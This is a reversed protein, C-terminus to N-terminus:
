VVYRYLPSKDGMLLMEDETFKNRSEDESIADRKKNEKQYATKLILTSLIAACLTGLSYGYGLWYRPEQKAIYINSGIAGGLNGISILLAMGIARKWSPALNNGIWSLCGILPPYVGAPVTFLFAYTLGPLRPHPIVLLAIFGVAAMAFPGVIFPWRTQYRDALWSFFITSAAGVLYIPMTLLQANAASYGLGLIISPASFTFGYLCVSNGWYIIISLWIKWEFFADKFYRWQFGENTNVRGATTGSDQVLRRIIFTKEYPQLFRATEPSDALIWILTVGVSVTLIGELIFIWRWGELGGIGDMKEIAFALLGSFASALSAASFFIAMRTQVEYRCYWTTLLYTAAPFFGAETFGLLTRTVILQDYNKVIGQMTMVTGWLVCLISIWVSPRLLKLVINSPVEFIGYPFFFVTLAINYQTGSLKLTKNMGAVKANGINGRDLFALVYLVTLVPLLRYDVKRLIRKTEKDDYSPLNREDLGNLDKNAMKVHEFHEEDKMTSQKEKAM